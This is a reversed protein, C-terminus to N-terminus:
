PNFRVIQGSRGRFRGRRVARGPLVSYNSVFIVGDGRVAIGAPFALRGRGIIERRGGPLLRVVSGRPDNRRLNRSYETVFLSGDAGWALGSIRTFGRAFIQPQRGPVVRWIRASGNRASPGGFEGVYVAGDPGLRVAAPASPVGRAIPPFVSLVSVRGDRELLLDNGGADAIFREQGLIAVGSPNSRKAGRDPNQAAEIDRLGALIEISGPAVAGVRLMRGLQQALRRLLGRPRRPTDGVAVYIRGTVTAIGVDQPGVAGTGDRGALSVLGRFARSLRGGTLRAIAGTTGSCAGSSCRTGGRGAEAIFLSGDPGFSMGRPNDLGNAVVIPGTYAGAAAPAAALALVAAVLASRWM